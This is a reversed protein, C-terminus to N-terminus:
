VEITGAGGYRTGGCPAECALVGGVIAKITLRSVLAVDWASHVPENDQLM